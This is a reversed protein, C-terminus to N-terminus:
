LTGPVTNLAVGQIRETTDIIAELTSTMCNAIPECTVAKHKVNAAPDAQELEPTERVECGCGDIVNVAWGKLMEAPDEDTRLQFEVFAAETVIEPIPINPGAPDALTVGSAVVVKTAVAIPISPDAVDEIVTATVGAGGDCGDIVRVAWGIVIALPDDLTNLQLVVFAVDTFIGPTPPNPGLPDAM